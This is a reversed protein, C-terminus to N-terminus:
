NEYMKIEEKVWSDNSVCMHNELGKLYYPEETIKKNRIDLEIANQM